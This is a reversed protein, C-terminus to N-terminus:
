ANGYGKEHHKIIYLRKISWSLGDDNKTAKKMGELREVCEAKSVATIHMLDRHGYYKHSNTHGNQTSLGSFFFVTKLRNKELSCLLLFFNEISKGENKWHFPSGLLNTLKSAYIYLIGRIYTAETLIKESWMCCISIMNCVLVRIKLLLFSHYQVSYFLFFM